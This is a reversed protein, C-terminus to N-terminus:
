QNLYWNITNEIGKEFSFKPTWGLKNIIKSNDIKYCFDHGKRDDVFKICDRFSKKNRNRTINSFLNFILKILNYNSMPNNSGILYTSNKNSKKLIEILASIHDEVYIWDRINEGNGYIPIKINNILSYITKPILKELNQNPGYNNSCHTIISPLGYTHSYSNIIHDASAKSASYPSRPNYPTTETFRENLKCEGFVEDTSVCILKFNNCNKEWYELCAKVINHTGLINTTIFEDPNEISNDVHTEAALHFIAQPKFEFLIDRFKLYDRIDTKSISINKKSFERFSSKDHAYTLKDLILINFGLDNLKRSLHSGIFGLGGTILVRM